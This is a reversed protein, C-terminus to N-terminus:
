SEKIEDWLKRFGALEVRYGAESALHDPEGEIRGSAAKAFTKLSWNSATTGASAILAVRAQIAERTDYSQLETLLEAATVIRM